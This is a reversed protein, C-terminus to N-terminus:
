AGSALSAAARACRAFRASGGGRSHTTRHLPRPTTAPPRRRARLGLRHRGGALGAGAQRVRQQPPPRGDERQHVAARRGCPQHPWPGRPHPGRGRPHDVARRGPPAAPGDPPSTRASTTCCRAPPMSSWRRATRTGSGACAEAALLRVRAADYPAGVDHWLRWARRLIRLARAPDGEALVVAGEWTAATARLLAGDLDGAIRTLQDVGRRAGALDGTALAIEVYPALVRAQELPGRAGDVLRRIAGTAAEVDDQDLRLLALGPQPDRGARSAQRYAAEAAEHEGRLRHLEGREYWADGGAPAGALWTCAAEAAATAEPWSGGMRLLEARHVLCQGRYPVVDSHADCWTSLTVVWEQARAVELLRQCTVIAGCTVLGAAQPSLADSQVAVMTQDLLAVGTDRDGLEVLAQGRGLRGIAAVDPDDFREGIEWIEISRDLAAAAEGRDLLHLFSPALLLGREACDADGLLEDARALWGAGRRGPGRGDARVGALVRM